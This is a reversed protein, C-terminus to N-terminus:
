RSFGFADTIFPSSAIEITHTITISNWVDNAYEMAVTGVHSVHSVGTLKHAVAKNDPGASAVVTSCAARTRSLPGIRKQKYGHSRKSRARHQEYAMHIEQTGDAIVYRKGRSEDRIIAPKNGSM